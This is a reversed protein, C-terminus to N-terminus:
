IKRLNVNTMISRQNDTQIYNPKEGRRNKKNQVNNEFRM